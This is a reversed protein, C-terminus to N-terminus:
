RLGLVAALRGVQQWRDLSPAPLVWTAVCLGCKLAAGVAANFNARAQRWRRILEFIPDPQQTM